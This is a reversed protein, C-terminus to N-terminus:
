QWDRCSAIAVFVTSEEVPCDDGQANHIVMKTQTSVTNNNYIISYFLIVFCVIIDLGFQGLSRATAAADDCDKQQWQRTNAAAQWVMM